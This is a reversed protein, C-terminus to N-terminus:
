YCFVTLAGSLLLLILSILFPYNVSDKRQEKKDEKFASFPKIDGKRLSRRAVYEMIDFDGHRALSSFVALILYIAGIVTLPDILRILQYGSTVYAYVPYILAPILLLFARLLAAWPFNFESLVAPDSTYISIITKQFPIALLAGLFALAFLVFAIIQLVRCTKVSM